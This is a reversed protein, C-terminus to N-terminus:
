ILKLQGSRTKDVNLSLVGSKKFEIAKKLGFRKAISDACDVDVDSITIELYNLNSKRMHILENNIKAIWRSIYNFESSIKYAALQTPAIITEIDNRYKSGGNNLFLDTQKKYSFEAHLM